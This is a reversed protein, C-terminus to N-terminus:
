PRQTGEYNGRTGEPFTTNRFVIDGVRDKRPHPSIDSIAFRSTIMIIIVVIASKLKIRSTQHRDKKGGITNCVPLVQIASWIVNIVGNPKM